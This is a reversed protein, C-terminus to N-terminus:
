PSARQWPSLNGFRPSPAWLPGPPGTKGPKLRRAVGPTLTFRGGGPGRRGGEGGRTLDLGTETPVSATSTEPRLSPKMVMLASVLAGSAQHSM